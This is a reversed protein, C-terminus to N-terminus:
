HILTPLSYLMLIIFDMSLSCKSIFDLSSYLTGGTELSQSVHPETSNHIFYTHKNLPFTYDNEM